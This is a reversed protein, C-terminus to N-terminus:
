GAAAARADDKLASFSAILHDIQADSHAASLSCRVLCWGNPTAPPLMLNVYVGHDLLGQWFTLAQEPTDFMAAVVPGPEAGLRFDQAVLADHLRHANRWLQERLQPAARLRALAARTSAIVSPVPSATFIYPRSAYRVVDLADHRSVCYGGAAGLSKSFTGVIFDVQDLVGDAEAVGSGTEGCIGLSHAEDVYILAGHRHAVECLAALPARDGLMSYIGEVVVLADTAREGLRRLRKDLDAADNHRFRLTEAGGLKVGDYISAHCDADLMVVDRPGALASLMGLNAQYGTSFVIAQGVGYFEALERELALHGAYSGNAMRSGTTGTGERRVADAGADVCAPDFTLGLYNNSGALITRKGRVMAETASLIQDIPVGLPDVGTAAIRRRVDAIPAFKDFISM